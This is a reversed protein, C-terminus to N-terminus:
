IATRFRTINLYLLIDFNHNILTSFFSNHPHFLAHLKIHSLLKHISMTLCDCHIGRNGTGPNVPLGLAQQAMTPQDCFISSRETM